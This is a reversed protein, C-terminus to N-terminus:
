DIVTLTGYNLTVSYSASVDEGESNIIKYGTVTNSSQGYNDQKGNVVAVLIDGSEIVGESYLRLGVESEGRLIDSNEGNSEIVVSYYPCTLPMSPNYSSEAPFTNLTLKCPTVELKGYDYVLEYNETVDQGSKDLVAVKIINESVGVATQSSEAEEVSVTHGSNLNGYLVSFENNVLPTGDYQKEADATKIVIVNGDGKGGNEGDGFLKDFTGAIMLTVAALAALVVIAFIYLFKRRM